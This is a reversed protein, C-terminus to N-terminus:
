GREQGFSTCLFCSLTLSGGVGLDSAAAPWHLTSLFAVLKVWIGVYYPWGCVDEADVITPVGVWCLNWIQAPGPLLAHNRVAHVVRQRKPLIGASWVLAGPPQVLQVMM